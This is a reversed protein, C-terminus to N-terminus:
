AKDKGCLKCTQVTKTVKHGEGYPKDDGPNVGWAGHNYHGAELKEHHHDALLALAEKSSAIPYEANPAPNGTKAEYCMTIAFDCRKPCRGAQHTALPNECDCGSCYWTTLYYDYEMVTVKRDVYQHAKKTIAKQYKCKKCTKIGTRECTAKKTTKYKHKCKKQKATAKPLTVTVTMTIDKHIGSKDKGTVTATGAGIGVLVVCNTWGVYEDYLDTEVALVNTDSSSWRYREVIDYNDQESNRFEHNIDTVTLKLSDGPKITVSGGNQFEGGKTTAATVTTTDVSIGTILIAATLISTIITKLLNKM